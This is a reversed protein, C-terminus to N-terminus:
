LYQLCNAQEMGQSRGSAARTEIVWPSYRFFNSSVCLTLFWCPRPYPLM